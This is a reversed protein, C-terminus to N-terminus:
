RKEFSAILGDFEKTAHGIVDAPGVLKFFVAGQPGEVIAGLLKWAPRKGQSQMQSDPALYTGDIEV